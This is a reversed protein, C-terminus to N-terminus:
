KLVRQISPKLKIIILLGILSLISILLSSLIPPYVILLLGIWLLVLNSNFVMSKFRYFNFIRDVVVWLMLPLIYFIHYTAQYFAYAPTTLIQTQLWQNFVSGINFGCTQQNMYVIWLAFVLLPLSWIKVPENIFKRNLYVMVVTLFGAFCSIWYLPTFVPLIFKTYHSICITVLLLMGVMFRLNLRNAFLGMGALFFMLCFLSCPTFAELFATIMVQGLTEFGPRAREMQIDFSGTGSWTMMRSETAKTLRGEREIQQHCYIIAKKLVKGTTQASDFGLWRSNCFIITPVSFNNSHFHQLEIFFDKLAKKDENIVHNQVTIWPTSQSLEHFFADAKQCHPCTSTTYLDVKLIVKKETKQSLGVPPIRDLAAYTLSASLLTLLLLIRKIMNSMYKGALDDRIVVRHTEM